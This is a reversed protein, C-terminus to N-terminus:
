EAGNKLARQMAEEVYFHTLPSDALFTAHAKQYIERLLERGHADIFAVGRLDLQLKGSGLTPALSNWVRSLEEVWPGVIKGDLQITQGNPTEHITIRLM